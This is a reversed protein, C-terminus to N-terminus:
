RRQGLALGLLLELKQDLLTAHADLADDRGALRTWSAEPVVLCVILEDHQQAAGGTQAELVAVHREVHPGAIPDLNGRVHPMADLGRSGFRRRHPQRNM